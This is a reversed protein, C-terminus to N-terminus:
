DEPSIQRDSSILRIAPDANMSFMKGFVRVGPQGSFKVPDILHLTQASLLFITDPDRRALERKLEFSPLNSKATLPPRMDFIYRLSFSDIWVNQWQHDSVASEIKRYGSWQEPHQHQISFFGIAIIALPIGPDIARKIEHTPLLNQIRCAPYCRGFTKHPSTSFLL